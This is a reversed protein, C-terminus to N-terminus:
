KIPPTVASVITSNGDSVNRFPNPLRSGSYYGDDKRLVRSQGGVTVEGAGRTVMRAEHASHTLAEGNDSGVAYSEHLMLIQRNPHSM